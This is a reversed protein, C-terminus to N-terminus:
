WINIYIIFRYTCSIHYIIFIVCLGLWPTKIAKTPVDNRQLLFVHPWLTQVFWDEHTTKKSPSIGDMCPCHNPHFWHQERCWVWCSWHGNIPHFRGIKIIKSIFGDLQKHHEVGCRPSHLAECKCRLFGPLHPETLCRAYRTFCFPKGLSQYGRLM